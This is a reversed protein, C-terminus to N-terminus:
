KNLVAISQPYLAILYKAEDSDIQNLSVFPPIPMSLVEGPFLQTQFYYVKGSVATFHALTLLRGASFKSQVNACLHHVGPQVSVSFYSNKKYAGVWAGDVGIKLTLHQINNMLGNNQIFYITSKEPYLQAFKHKSKVLQVHFSADRPGCAAALEAPKEQALVPAVLMIVVLLFKV